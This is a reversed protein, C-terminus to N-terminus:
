TGEAPSDLETRPGWGRIADIARSTFEEETMEDEDLARLWEERVIWTGNVAGDPDTLTAAVDQPEWEDYDRLAVVIQGVQRPPVGGTPIVSEYVLELTGDIVGADNLYINQSMLNTKLYEVLDEDAPRPM